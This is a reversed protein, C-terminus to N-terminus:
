NPKKQARTEAPAIEPWNTIQKNAEAEHALERIGAGLLQHALRLQELAFKTKRRGWRFGILMSLGAIALAAAAVVIALTTM